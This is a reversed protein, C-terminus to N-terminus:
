FVYFVYIFLRRIFNYIFNQELIQRLLSFCDEITKLNQLM